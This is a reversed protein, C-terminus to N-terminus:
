LQERTKPLRSICDPHADDPIKMYKLKEFFFRYRMHIEGWVYKLRRNIIESFEEISNM